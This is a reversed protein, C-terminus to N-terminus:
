TESCHGRISYYVYPIFDAWTSLRSSCRMVSRSSSDASRISVYQRRGTLYSTLWALAKGGIGFHVCLRDLLLEDDLSAKKLCPRIQAIKLMEPMMACDLSHNVIDTIEPLIVPWCEKLMVAPIPDLDCSKITSFKIIKSVQVQTVPQFCVLECKYFICSFSSATISSRITNIKELIFSYKMLLAPLTVLHLNVIYFLTLLLFCSANIVRITM